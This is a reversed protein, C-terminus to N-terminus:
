EGGRLTANPDAGVAVLMRVLKDSGNTSALALPTIGYRNETKVKAGADILIKAVEPEDHYAAWHLATMGDTQAANPEAKTKLPARVKPWDAKEAADPPPADAAWM